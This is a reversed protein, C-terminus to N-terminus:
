SKMQARCLLNSIALPLRREQIHFICLSLSLSLNCPANDKSCVACPRLSSALQSKTHVKSISYARSHVLQQVHSHMCTSPAKCMHLHPWWSLLICIVIM